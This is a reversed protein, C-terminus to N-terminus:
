RHADGPRPDLAEAMGMRRALDALEDWVQSPLVIGERRARAEARAEPEGPVMVEDFGEAPAVAKIGVILAEV